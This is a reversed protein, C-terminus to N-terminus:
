SGGKIEGDLIESNIVMDRNTLFAAVRQYSPM